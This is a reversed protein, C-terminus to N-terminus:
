TALGADEILSKVAPAFMTAAFRAGHMSSWSQLPPGGEYTVSISLPHGEELSRLISDAVAPAILTRRGHNAKRIPELTLDWADPHGAAALHVSRLENSTSTGCRGDM